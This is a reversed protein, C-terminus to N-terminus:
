LSKGEPWSALRGGEAALAGGGLPSSAPAAAGFKGKWARLVKLAYDTRDVGGHATSPLASPDVGLGDVPDEAEAPDVGHGATRRPNDFDPAKKGGKKVPKGAKAKKVVKKM